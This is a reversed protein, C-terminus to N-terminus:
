IFGGLGRGRHRPQATERRNRRCSKLFDAAFIKDYRALAGLKATVFLPLAGDRRELGGM